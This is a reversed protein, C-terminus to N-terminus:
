TLHFWNGQSDRTINESCYICAYAGQFTDGGTRIVMNLKDTQPFGWGLVNHFFLKIKNM